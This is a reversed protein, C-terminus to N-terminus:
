TRKTKSTKHKLKRGEVNVINWRINVNLKGQEDMKYLRCILTEGINYEGVKGTKKRIENSVAQCRINTYALNEGM